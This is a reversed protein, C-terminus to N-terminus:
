RGEENAGLYQRLFAAMAARGEGTELEMEDENDEQTDIHVAHLYAAHKYLNITASVEWPCLSWEAELEGTPTPYLRPKPIAENAMLELLLEQAWSLREKPLTDGVGDLWGPKLTALKQFRDDLKGVTAEDTNTIPVLKLLRIVNKLEGEHDYTADVTIGARKFRRDRLLTALEYESVVGGGYTAEIKNGDRTIVKFTRSVVDLAKVQGVFTVIKSSEQLELNRLREKLARHYIPGRQAGPARLEVSEGEELYEGMHRLKNLHRRPLDPPLPREHAATEITEGVIDRAQEFLDLGSPPYLVPSMLTSAMVTTRVLNPITSGDEV